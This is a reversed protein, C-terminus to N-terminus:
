LWKGYPRRDLSSDELGFGIVPYWLHLFKEVEVVNKM